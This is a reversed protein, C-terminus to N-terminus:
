KWLDQTLEANVDERKADRIYRQAIRQLMSSTRPWRERLQNAYGQYQGALDREQEGGATLSKTYVGRRNYVSTELGSELRPSELEEILDCVCRHPWSSDPNHSVNALASGIAYDGIDHRGKSLLARAQKVWDSVAEAVVTGDDECGPGQRWSEILEHGLQARVSDHQSRERHEEDEDSKYILSIVEAFFAPNRSLERHLLKPTGCNQIVPLYAWELSAIRSEDVKASVDLGGLLRTIDYGINSLDVAAEPLVELLRELADAVVSPSVAPGDEDSYLAIFDIAVHPRGNEILKVAARESDDRSPLGYPIVRSWYLQQTATDTAELLDWTRAEFSLSALFEAKVEPLWASTADAALMDNVWDWGGSGFRGTVFGRAFLAEGTAGSSLIRGLFEDEENQLLESKGVILGAETPREVVNAFNLLLPLGGKAHLASVAKLRASELADHKARWDRGHPNLLHPTKSFLWARQDIPDQPAFREYVEQLNEVMEKPMAWKADPFVRHKSIVNQLSEWIRM